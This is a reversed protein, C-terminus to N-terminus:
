KKLHEASLSGCMKMGNGTKPMPMHQFSESRSVSGLGDLSCEVNPNAASVRPEHCEHNKNAQDDSVNFCPHDDQCLTTADYMYM